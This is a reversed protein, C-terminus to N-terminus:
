KGICFRSFITTLLDPTSITGTLLSLHHLAQRVDQAIFDASLGDILASEVRELSELGRLIAAHHRANTLMIDTDPNYSGYALDVMKQKLEEIGKGESASIPLITMFEDYEPTGSIEKATEENQPNKMLLVEETATDSLDSKNLLLIHRSESLEKVRGKIEELRILPNDTIDILWLIISAKRLKDEARKIGIQEIADSAERLGATDSFRFLIGDIEATAEIVDRTTGPIDSVIAKDEDLLANLLTSKGANPAGAIVVPIGEKLVRGTSYSDALRRLTSITEETLDRLKKRDAFEVDEESFDLELELLSALDILKGRLENLYGTFRGSTQQMAMKHAARSSSSILDIVGEAQALDMRGNLFARKTFEGPEAPRAGCETLRKVIERQIWRSGHCSIEIVDEGTFSKPAKFYTILVEDLPEGNPYLIKGLHATHSVIEALIKGEWCKELVDKARSGSLRIVAIGGVGAPTSVAVISDPEYLSKM